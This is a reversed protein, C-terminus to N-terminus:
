EPFASPADENTKRTSARYRRLLVISYVTLIGVVVTYAAIVYNWGGIIVGETM